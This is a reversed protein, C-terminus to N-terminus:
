VAEGSEKDDNGEGGDFLGSDVADNQKSPLSVGGTEIWAEIESLRFRIVKKIKHFPIDRNLVWRRITQEALKLHLALGEITLYTEV